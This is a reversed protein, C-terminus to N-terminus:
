VFLVSVSSGTHINHITKGLLAAVSVVTIKSCSELKEGLPITDTVFVQSLAETANIREIAPGSLVAHTACAVIKTAGNKLLVEAGTCLTGATDIMDDVVVALRGQVDGIVHMAQAQNPKDRRKDVIALPADLRKAFARAREVGGADPSVIVLNEKDLQRLAELMVPVAFLNDVPCDFYGQIQGAHLDVTVVREAGAVSIFDAVMKASIPARPSVKRDQRAYGYYPIVATIRGASARKLADLMLCLQVLNRNINPPCTPQVVFVDDGRVNDGIEIRLEGDSFRTALTPTLQCGLHDCIAKALDPNSSGTVIKLDSYM